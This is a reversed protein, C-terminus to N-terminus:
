VAQAAQAVTLAAVAALDAPVKSIRFRLLPTRYVQAVM